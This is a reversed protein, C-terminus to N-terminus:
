KNKRFVFLLSVVPILLLIWGSGLCFGEGKVIKTGPLARRIDSIAVSDEFYTEGLVLLELDKMEYLPSLDEPGEILTLSRLGTYDALPSLESISDLYLLELVKLANQTELIGSLDEQSTNAPLSIGSLLPLEKIVPINSIEECGAFGLSKLGTFGPLSGIEKLNECGTLNLVKLEPLAPLASLDYIDSSIMSLSRLSKLREFQLGAIAASDWEEIILTNLKPLEYLFEYNMSDTGSILILELDNLNSIVQESLNNFDFNEVLLWEPSFISLVDPFLKENAIHLGPDSNIDAINRLTQLQAESLTDDIQIVRLSRIDEERNQDIWDWAKSGSCLILSHLENNLHVLNMTTDCSFSLSLGDDPDYRYLFEDDFVLLDGYTVTMTLTDSGESTSYRYFHYSSSYNYVNDVGAISIIYYEPQKSWPDSGCSAIILFAPLLLLLHSHKHKKM